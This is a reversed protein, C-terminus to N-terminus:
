WLFSKDDSICSEYGMPTNNTWSSTGIRSLTSREFHRGKQSLPGGISFKERQKIYWFLRILTLDIKASVMAAVSLILTFDQPRRHVRSVAKAVSWNRRNLARHNESHYRFLTNLERFVPLDSNLASTYSFDAMSVYVKSHLLSFKLNWCNAEGSWMTHNILQIVM